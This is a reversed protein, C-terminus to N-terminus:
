KKTGEPLNERLNPDKDIRLPVSYMLVLYSVKASVTALSPIRGLVPDMVTRPEQQLFAGHTLFRWIPDRVKDNFERRSITEGSHISIECIQNTPVGRKRAYYDALPKSDPDEANYVIVVRQALDDARAARPLWLLAALATFWLGTERWVGRKAM